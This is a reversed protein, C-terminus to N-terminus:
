RYDNISLSAVTPARRQSHARWFFFNFFAQIPRHFCSIQGGEVVGKADNYSSIESEAEGEKRGGREIERERKKRDMIKMSQEKERQKQTDVKYRQKLSVMPPDAVGAADEGEEAVGAEEGDVEAVDGVADEM